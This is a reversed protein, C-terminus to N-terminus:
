TFLLVYIQHKEDKNQRGFKLVVRCYFTYPMSGFTTLLYSFYEINVTYQPNQKQKTCYISM